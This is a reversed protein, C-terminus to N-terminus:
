LSEIDTSMKKTQPHALILAKKEENPTGALSEFYAKNITYLENNINISMAAKSVKKDTDRRKYFSNILKIKSGLTQFAELAALESQFDTDIYTKFENSGGFFEAVEKKKAENAETDHWMPVLELVKAVQPTVGSETVIKVANRLAAVEEETVEKKKKKEEKQETATEAGEVTVGEELVDTNVTDKAM